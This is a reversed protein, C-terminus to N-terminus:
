DFSLFVKTPNKRLSEKWSVQDRRSLRSPHNCGRFKLKVSRDVTTKITNLQFDMGYSKKDLLKHVLSFSNVKAELFSSSVELRQTVNEHQLKQIM